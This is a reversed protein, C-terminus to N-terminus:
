FAFSLKKIAKYGFKEDAGFGSFSPFFISNDGIEFKM